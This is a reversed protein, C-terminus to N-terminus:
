VRPFSPLAYRDKQEKFPSTEPLQLNKSVARTLDYESVQSM